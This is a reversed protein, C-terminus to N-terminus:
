LREKCCKLVTQGENRHMKIKKLRYHSISMKKLQAFCTGNGIYFFYFHM